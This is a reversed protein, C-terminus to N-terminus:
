GRLFSDRMPPLPCCESYIIGCISRLSLIKCVLHYLDLGGKKPLHPLDQLHVINRLLIAEYLSGLHVVLAGGSVCCSVLGNERVKEDMDEAGCLLYLLGLSSPSFPLYMMFFINTRKREKGCEGVGNM